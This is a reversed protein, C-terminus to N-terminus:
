AGSKGAESSTINGPLWVLATVGSGEGSRPRLLVKIGHRAALRGVVFLGMRRSVAVDVAEPNELRWNCRAMEQASMGVGDDTIELLVGGSSLAQGSVRVQTDERSFWPGPL